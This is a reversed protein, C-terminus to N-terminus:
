GRPKSREALVADVLRQMSASLEHAREGSVPVGAELDLEIARALSAVEAGGINGASGRISHAVSQAGAYDGSALLVGVRDARPLADSVFLDILEDLFAPDDDLARLTDWVDRDFAPESSSM